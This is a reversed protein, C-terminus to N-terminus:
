LNELAQIVGIAPLESPGSIRCMPDELSDNSCDMRPSM